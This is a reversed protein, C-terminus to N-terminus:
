DDVGLADAARAIEAGVRDLEDWPPRWGLYLLDLVPIGSGFTVSSAAAVEIRMHPSMRGGTLVLVHCRSLIEVQGTITSPRQVTDDAACYAMAPYCIAWRTARRLFQFWGIANALNDGRAAGWDADADGLPHALYAVTVAAAYRAGRFRGM